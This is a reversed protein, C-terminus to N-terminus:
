FRYDVLLGVTRPTGYSFNLQNLNPQAPGVNITYEEETLNRGWLAVSLDGDASTWTARAGLVSYSDHKRSPDEDNGDWVEDYGRYDARLDIASGDAMAISYTAILTSTFEPTNDPRNGSYDIDVVGDNNEDIRYNTLEADLNAMSGELRFNDTVQWVFEVALGSIEADAANDVVQSYNGSPTEVFNFVQLDSYDTM